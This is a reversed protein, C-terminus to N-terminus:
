HIFLYSHDGLGDHTQGILMHSNVIYQDTGSNYTANAIQNNLNNINTAGFQNLLLGSLTLSNINPNSGVLQGDPLLNDFHLTLGRYGVAGGTNTDNFSNDISSVGKVFGWITAMDSGLNFDAITSWSTGSARGDLFFTDGTHGIGGSIFTSGV